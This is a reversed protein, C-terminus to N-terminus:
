EVVVANANIQNIKQKVIEVEDDAFVGAVGSESWETFPRDFLVELDMVGNEVLHDVIRNM